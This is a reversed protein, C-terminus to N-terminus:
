FWSRSQTQILEYRPEPQPRNPDLKAREVVEDVERQMAAVLEELGIIQRGSTPDNALRIGDTLPAFMQGDYLLFNYLLALDALEGRAKPLETIVDRYATRAVAIERELQRLWAQKHQGPLGNLESSACQEADADRRANEVTKRLAEAKGAPAKPGDVLADGRAVRDRNETVSLERELEEVRAEAKQRAQACM